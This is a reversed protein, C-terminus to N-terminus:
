ASRGAPTSRARPSTCWPARTAPSSSRTASRNQLLRGLQGPDARVVPLPDVVVEAGAEEISASLGALTEHVVAGLPVPEPVLRTRGARSYELLGAILRQM